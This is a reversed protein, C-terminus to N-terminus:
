GEKKTQNVKKKCTKCFVDKFDSEAIKYGVKKGREYTEKFLDEIIGDKELELLTIEKDIKILRKSNDM